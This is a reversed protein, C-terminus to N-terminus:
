GGVPAATEALPPQILSLMLLAIGGYQLLVFLSRAVHSPLSGPLAAGPWLTKMRPLLLVPLVLIILLVAQITQREASAAVGAGLFTGLVAVAAMVGIWAGSLYLLLKLDRTFWGLWFMSQCIWILIAPMWLPTPNSGGYDYALWIWVGALSLALLGAQRLIM